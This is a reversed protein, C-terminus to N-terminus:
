LRYRSQLTRLIFRDYLLHHRSQPGHEYRALICCVPAHWLTYSTYSCSQKTNGNVNNIQIVQRPWPRSIEIDM